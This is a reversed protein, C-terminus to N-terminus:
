NSNQQRGLRELLEQELTKKLDTLENILSSSTTTHSNVESVVNNMANIIEEYDECLECVVSDKACLEIIQQRKEPFSKIISPNSLLNMNLLKSEENKSFCYSVTLLLLNCPKYFLGFDILYM